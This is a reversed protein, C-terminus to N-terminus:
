RELTRPRQHTGVGRRVSGEDAFFGVRVVVRVRVEVRQQFARRSQRQVHPLAVGRASNFYVVFPMSLTAQAAALTTGFFMDWRSPGM